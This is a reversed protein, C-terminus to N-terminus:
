RPYVEVAGLELGSKHLEYTFRGSLKANFELVATKGPVLKLHRDYGHLHMEDPADSTVRLTVEDGQKVKLVAPESVRRGNRVVVDLTKPQPEVAPAAPVASETPPPPTAPPTTASASQPSTPSAPTSPQARTAPGSLGPEPHPKFIVYLGVLLLLSAALLVSIKV